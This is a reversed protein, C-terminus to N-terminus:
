YKNKIRDVIGDLKLKDLAKQWKQIINDDTQPNFAIYMDGEFAVVNNIPVIEGALGMRKSNYKGAMLLTPWLDINGDVLKNINKEDRGGSLVQLNQFGQKKLMEYNAVGKTVGVRAVKKADEISELKITSGKKKFFVLKMSTLPGVWKYKKERDPTRLMSFLARNAKANTLKVARAWPYAKIKTHSNVEKQIAKVIDVSIGILKGDNIYQFPPFVEATLSIKNEANLCSFIFVISLIVKKM